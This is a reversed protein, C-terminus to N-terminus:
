EPYYYVDFHETKLVHWDFDAYQIKNRGFHYYGYQARADQSPLLPLVLALALLWFRPAQSM